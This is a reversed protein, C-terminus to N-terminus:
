NRDAMVMGVFFSFAILFLSLVNGAGSMVNGAGSEGCKKLLQPNTPTSRPDAPNTIGETFLYPGGVGECCVDGLEAGNHVKDGNSDALCFKRTYNFGEAKFLIAIANLPGGGSPDIHGISNVDPFGASNPILEKYREFASVCPAVLLPLLVVTSCKM